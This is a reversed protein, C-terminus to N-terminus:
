TGSLCGRKRPYLYAACTGTDPQAQRGKAPSCKCAQCCAFAASQQGTIRPQQLQLRLVVALWSCSSVTFRPASTCRQRMSQWPLLSMRTSSCKARCPSASSSSPAVRASLFPALRGATRRVLRVDLHRRLRPTPQQPAGAGHRARAHVPHRGPVDCRSNPAHSVIRSAPCASVVVLGPLERWFEIHPLAQAGSLGKTKINYATGGVLYVCAGVSLSTMAAPLRYLAARCGVMTLSVCHCCCSGRRACWILFVWGGSMRSSTPCAAPTRFDLTYHCIDDGSGEQENVM